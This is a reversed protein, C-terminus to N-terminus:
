WRRWWWRRRRRGMLYGLLFSDSDSSDSGEGALLIALVIPAVTIAEVVLVLESWGFVFMAGAALLVAILAWGGLVTWPRVLMAFGVVVLVAVSVYLTTTPGIGPILAIPANPAVFHTLVIMAAVVSAFWGVPIGVLTLVTGLLGGGSSESRQDGVRPHRERQEPM